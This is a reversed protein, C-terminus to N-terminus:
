YKKKELNQRCRKTIYNFQIIQNIMTKYIPRVNCYKHFKNKFSRYRIKLVILIDNKDYSHIKVYNSLYKM